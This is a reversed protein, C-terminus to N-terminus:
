GIGDVEDELAAKAARYIMQEEAGSFVDRATVLIKRLASKLNEVRARSTVSLQFQQVQRLQDLEVHLKKIELEQERILSDKGLLETIFGM